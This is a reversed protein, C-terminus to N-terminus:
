QKALVAYTASKSLPMLGYQGAYSAIVLVTRTDGLLFYDANKSMLTHYMDETLPISMCPHDIEHIDSCKGKLPTITYDLNINYSCQIPKRSM